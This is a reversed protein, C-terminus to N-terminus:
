SCSQNRNTSELSARDNKKPCNIGEGTRLAQLFFGLGLLTLHSRFFVYQKMSVEHCAQSYNPHVKKRNFLMKGRPKHGFNSPQCPHSVLHDDDHQM